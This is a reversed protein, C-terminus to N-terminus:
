TVVQDGILGVAIAYYDSPNYRRIADFNPFALFAEGAQGDPTVLAAVTDPPARWQGSTPRVGTRAWDELPRRAASTPVTMSPSVTVAQGWPQGAKWGSKALYNAISALVDPTSTWINRRGDGEFDVAYRLYSTPMFQPQGMAGAYSGTM